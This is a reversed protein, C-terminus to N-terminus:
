HESSLSIQSAYRFHPKAASVLFHISHFCTALISPLHFHYPGHEIPEIPSLEVVLIQNHWLWLLFAGLDVVTVEVGLMGGGGLLQAEGEM